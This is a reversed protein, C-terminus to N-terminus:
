FLLYYFLIIFFILFNLQALQFFQFIFIFLIFIYVTKALKKFLNQLLFTLFGILFLFLILFVVPGYVFQCNFYQEKTNLLGISFYLFIILISWYLFHNKKLWEENGSFLMPKLIMGLVFFFLYPGFFLIGFPWQSWFASLFYCSVSFIFSFLLFLGPRIKKAKLLYWLFPYIFYLQLILPIFWFSLILLPFLINNPMKLFLYFAPIFFVVFPIM